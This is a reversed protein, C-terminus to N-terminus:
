LKVGACELAHRAKVIPHEPDKLDWGGTYQLLESLADTVGANAIRLAEVITERRKGSLELMRFEDSEVIALLETFRNM